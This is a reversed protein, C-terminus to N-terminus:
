HFIRCLWLVHRSSFYFAPAVLYLLILYGRSYILNESGNLYLYHAFQLGALSLLLIRLSLKAQIQRNDPQFRHALLTLLVADIVSFGIFTATSHM